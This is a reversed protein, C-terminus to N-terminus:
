AESSAKVHKDRQDAVRFLFYMGLLPVVIALISFGLGFLPRTAAGDVSLAASILGSRIPTAVGTVLAAVLLMFPLLVASVRSFLLQALGYSLIVSSALHVTTTSFIRTAVVDLPANTGLVFSVNLVSAYGIASAAAFAVADERERFHDPWAVYRVVLYKLFEQTIGVTITYGIIRDVASQLSLWNDPQVFESLLPLGIANAVLASVIFTTFLGSRPEQVSRERWYSFILWLLAPLAAVGISLPLRIADPIAVGVFNVVVFIAVTVVILVTTEIIM